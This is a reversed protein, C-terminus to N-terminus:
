AKKCVANCGGCYNSECVQGDGCKWTSCPDVLCQVPASGDSCSGPAPSLLDAKKCVANCGGCYNSECVEGVGCKTAKCPDVLCNVPRSGDSCSGDAKQTPSSPSSGAPKKCVANCGGCYNAECVLGGDCKTTSCPDALCRVPPNGDSCSGDFNQTTSPGAPKPSDAPKKCFANCGRCYDRVCLEGEACKQTECPDAFCEVSPGESPKSGDACTSPAPIWLSTGGIPANPTQAPRCVFNCGGCTTAECTFGPGCKSLFHFGGPPMCPDFQCAVPASGDQCRGFAGGKVAAHAQGRSGGQQNFESAAIGEVPTPTPTNDGATSVNAPEPRVPLTCTANCGGCYSAQCFSPPPCLMTACPNVLCKFPVSGDPCTDSSNNATSNVAPHPKLPHPAAPETETHGGHHAPVKKLCTSKCTGCAQIVCTTNSPCNAKECIDTKCMARRLGHPCTVATAQLVCSVIFTQKCSAHQLQIRCTCPSDLSCTGPIESCQQQTATQVRSAHGMPVVHMRGSHASGPRTRFVHMRCGAPEQATTRASWGMLVKIVWRSTSM